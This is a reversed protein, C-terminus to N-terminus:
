FHTASYQKHLLTWVKKALLFFRSADPLIFICSAEGQFLHSTELLSAAPFRFQPELGRIYM